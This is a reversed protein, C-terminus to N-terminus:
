RESNVSCGKTSQDQNEEVQRDRAQAKRSQNYKLLFFMTSMLFLCCSARCWCCAAPSACCVCLTSIVIFSELASMPEWTAESLGYGDGLTLFKWGQEYEHRAIGAAVYYGDVAMEDATMEELEDAEEPSAANQLDIREVESDSLRWEDWSLNDPSQYHRLQKPACLLEGGLRPSCRVHIRSGDIRIIRYPGFYPDQLCNRPWSPLRSHHVLVLDGVKFSAPRRLRNRRSLGRDLIHRLNTGAQNALSQKHELWDGVPSKSHAPFPTKFFWAPRGGHFLEHPTFGTSSRQQSNMILVAWPVLRVWDKTREQKMLIRLTQEVVRNQRECLPNSTHTYPVGTTVEVNLANLVRKYWGTDSRIRVDEDSHVQKPAGYPEFWQEVLMKVTQEGTIKKNCPFLRTFRSLGCTVVLCSDYGGFRPLGHIFDVYLLSNACYPIPLSSILSKILARYIKIFDQLNKITFDWFWLLLYLLFLSHISDLFLKFDLTVCFPHLYVFCTYVCLNM